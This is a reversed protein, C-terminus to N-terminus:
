NLPNSVAKKVFSVFGYGKSKMTQPDRVVRCDRLTTKPAIFIKVANKLGMKSEEGKKAGSIYIVQKYHKCYPVGHYKEVTLTSCPEVNCADNDQIQCTWWVFNPSM